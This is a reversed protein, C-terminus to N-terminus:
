GTTLCKGVCDQVGIDIQTSIYDWVEVLRVERSPSVEEGTYSTVPDQAVEVEGVGRAGVDSM